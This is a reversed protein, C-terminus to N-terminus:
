GFVYRYGTLKRNLEMLHMVAQPITIALIFITPTSILHYDLFHPNLLEFAKIVLTLVILNTLYLGYARKGLRELWKAMPIRDRTIIPVLFMAMLPALIDIVPFQIVSLENLIVLVFGSFTIVTLVWSHQQIPPIIKNGHMKYIIGLPFFIGWSAITSWLVPPKIIEMWQPFTFGLGGPVQYNFLMLQYILICALLFMPFKKGMRILFPTILYLFIMLPVFNFPYGIIVNKIYELASYTEHFVLAILVYFIASWLLYPIIITVLNTFIIRYSLKLGKNEVAYVLFAGSLLLFIPVALLGIEKISFLIAREWTSNSTHGFREPITYSMVISHNLVVFLIAIGRLAPFQRNM